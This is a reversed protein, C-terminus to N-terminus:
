GGFAPLIIELRDGQTLVREHYLRAPVYQGNVEVLVHRSPEHESDLIQRVTAGEPAEVPMGNITLQMNAAKELAIIAGSRPRLRGMTGHPRLLLVTLV